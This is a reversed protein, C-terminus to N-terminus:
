EIEKERNLITENEGHIRVFAVPSQVCEINWKSALRINLDFDGIIHFNSNFKYKLDEFCKKRLVMTATRIVYNNLLEELIKGTPLSNKKLIKKKNKKKLKIGYIEM